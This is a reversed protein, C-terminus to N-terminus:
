AQYPRSVNADRANGLRRAGTIQVVSYYPLTM